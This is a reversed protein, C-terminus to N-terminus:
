GGRRVHAAQVVLDLDAQHDAALQRHAGLDGLVVPGREHGAQHHGVVDRGAVDLQRLGLEELGLGVRGERRDSGDSTRSSSSSSFRNPSRRRRRHTLPSSRWSETTSPSM